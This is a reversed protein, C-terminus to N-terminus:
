AMTACRSRLEPLVRLLALAAWGLVRTEPLQTSRAVDKLPLGQLMLMNLVIKEPVALDPILDGLVALGMPGLANTEAALPRYLQMLMEFVEDLSVGLHREFDAPLPAWDLESTLRALVEEFQRLLGLLDQQQRADGLMRYLTARSVGTVEVAENVSMGAQLAAPLLQQIRRTEQEAEAFSASRRGASKHLERRYFALQTSRSRRARADRERYLTAM